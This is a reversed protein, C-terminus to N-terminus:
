FPIEEMDLFAALVKAAEAPSEYGLPNGVAEYDPEQTRQNLRVARVKWRLSLGEKDLDIRFAYPAVWPVRPPIPGSM